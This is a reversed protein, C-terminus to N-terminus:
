LDQWVQRIFGQSWGDWCWAIQYVFDDRKSAEMSMIHRWHQTIYKTTWLPKSFEKLRGGADLAIVKDVNKEFQLIEQSSPAVVTAVHNIKLVDPIDTFMDPPTTKDLPPVFKPM